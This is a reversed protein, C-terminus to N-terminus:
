HDDHHVWLPLGLIALGVHAVLGVAVQRRSPLLWHIVQAMRGPTRNTANSAM